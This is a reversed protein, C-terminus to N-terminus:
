YMDKMMLSNFDNEQVNKNHESEPQNSVNQPQEAAPKIKERKKRFDQWEGYNKIYPHIGINIAEQISWDVEEKNESPACSVHGLNRCNICVIQELAQAPIEEERSDGMRLKWSYM